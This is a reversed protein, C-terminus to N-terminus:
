LNIYSYNWKWCWSIKKLKSDETVLSYNEGYGSISEMAKVCKKNILKNGATTIKGGILVNYKNGTYTFRKARLNPQGRISRVAYTATIGAAQENLALISKAQFFGTENVQRKGAPPPWERSNRPRSQPCREGETAAWPCFGPLTSQSLKEKEQLLAIQFTLIKKSFVNETVM